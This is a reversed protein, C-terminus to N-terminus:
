GASCYFDAHYCFRFVFGRFALELKDVAFSEWRMSLESFLGVRQEHKDSCMHSRPVNEVTRPTKKHGSCLGGKGLGWLIVEDLIIVAKKQM